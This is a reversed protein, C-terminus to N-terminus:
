YPNGKHGAGTNSGTQKGPVNIGPSSSPGPWGPGSSPAGSPPKGHCDNPCGSGGAPTQKAGKPM